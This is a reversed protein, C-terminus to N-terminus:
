SVEKEKATRRKRRFLRLLERIPLYFILRIFVIIVRAPRAETTFDVEGILTADVYNPKIRLDDLTMGRPSVAYVFGSLVGMAAPDGFGIEIDGALRPRRFCSLLDRLFRLGVRILQSLLKRERFLNFGSKKKGESKRRTRERRRREYLCKSGCLLQFHRGREDRRIGIGSARWPWHFAVKYSFDGYRAGKVHLSFPLMSVIILLALLGIIIWLALLM